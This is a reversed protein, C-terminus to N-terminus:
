SLNRSHAIGHHQTTELDGEPASPGGTIRHRPGGPTRSASSSVRGAHAHTSRAWSADPPGRAAAAVAVAVEVEVAVKVAVAIAVAIPVLLAM